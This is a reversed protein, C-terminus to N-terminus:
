EDDLKIAFLPIYEELYNKKFTEFKNSAFVFSGDSLIVKTVEKPFDNEDVLDTLANYNGPIDVLSCERNFWKTVTPGEQTPLYDAQNTSIEVAVIKGVSAANLFGNEIERVTREGRPHELNICPKGYVKDGDQRLDDWKVLVGQERPFELTGHMYYGIPNKKFEDLLYGSTLLRYSYTNLSSDTLLFEKAIKKFNEKM